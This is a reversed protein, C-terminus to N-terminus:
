TERLIEVTPSRLFWRTPLWAAGAAIVPAAVLGILGSLLAPRVSAWAAPWLALRIGFANGGAVLVLIVIIGAGAIVGAIGSVLGMLAAEGMVVARVQSQTAGVARLLGLEQRRESVSMVTTNVVGLAATLIALLLLGSLIIKLNDFQGQTELLVREGTFLWVGTHQDVLAALDAGLDGGDTGPVARVFMM